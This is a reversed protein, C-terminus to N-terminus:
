LCEGACAPGKDSHPEALEDVAEIRDLQAPPGVEGEPPFVHYYARANGEARLMVLVRKGAETSDFRALLSDGSIWDPDAAATDGATTAVASGFGRIESLVQDPAEIALSDGVITQEASEVRPRRTVGWVNGAQILNDAISFEITDGLAVWETSLAESSDQAQVWTLDGNEDLRVLFTDTGGVSTAEGGAAGRNVLHEGLGPNAADHLDM